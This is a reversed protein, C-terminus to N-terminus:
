SLWRFWDSSLEPRPDFDEKKRRKPHGYGPPVPDIGGKCFPNCRLIRWVTLVTGSILGWERYAKVAYHSCSPWFRCTPKGKLPSLYKQYFRIALVPPLTIIRRLREAYQRSM